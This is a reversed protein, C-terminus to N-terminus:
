YHESLILSLLEELHFIVSYQLVSVSILTPFPFIFLYNRRYPSSTVVSGQSSFMLITTSTRSLMWTPTQEAFCHNKSYVIRLSFEYKCISYSLFIPPQVAHVFYLTKLNSNTYNFFPAWEFMQWRFLSRTFVPKRHKTVSIPTIPHFIRWGGYSRTLSKPSQGSQFPLIPHRWVLYLLM